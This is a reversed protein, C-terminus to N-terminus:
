KKAFISELDVQSYSLSCFGDIVAGNNIQVSKANINGKIIASADVIIPGNIDIEGKVAGAIVGSAATIDGIIVTDASVKISGESNVSGELRKTNVFIDTAMSNGIVDGIITLKGLCDIDGHITGMIELSGDSTINGNIITGKTIITVEDKAVKNALGQETQPAFVLQAIEEETPEQAIEEVLPIDVVEEEDFLENLLETDVSDDDMDDFDDVDEESMEEELIDTVSDVEETEEDLTNIMQNDDFKEGLGGDLVLENVAQSLDEKFDKFFSM